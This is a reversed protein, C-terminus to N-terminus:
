VRVAAGTAISELIRFTTKSTNLIADFAIPPPAIGLAARRFADLEADFGKDAGSTRLKTEKGGRVFRTVIFDDCTAIGRACFIEIFEKPLSPDGNALYDITARAGSQHKLIICVSDGTDDGPTQLAAAYVEAVPSDALFTCLDVFHCVEGLIRGGGRERDQVWHTRPIAGANIRYRIVPQEGAAAIWARLRAAHASFRRNYGVMLIPRPDATHYA